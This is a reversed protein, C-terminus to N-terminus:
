FRTTIVGHKRFYNLVDITEQTKFRCQGLVMEKTTRHYNVLDGLFDCKSYKYKWGCSNIYGNQLEDGLIIVIGKYERLKNYLMSVIKKDTIFFEDMVICDFKLIDFNNKTKNLNIDLNLCHHITHCEADKGFRECYERLVKVANNNKSMCLVKGNINKITEYTKGAGGSGDEFKSGVYENGVDVWRKRKVEWEERYDKNLCNKDVFEDVNLKYPQRMITELNTRDVVLYDLECPSEFYVADTNYGYIIIDEPLSGLMKFFELIGCGIIGIYNVAYDGHLREKHTKRCISLRGDQGECKWDVWDVDMGEALSISVIEDSNTIFGEDSRSYKCNMTGTWSNVINKCYQPYDTHIDAYTKEVFNSFLDGDVNEKAPVYGIIDFEAGMKRMEIVFSDLYVASEVFIEKFCFGRLHYLGCVIEEGNYKRYNDFIDIVPIKKGKFYEIM